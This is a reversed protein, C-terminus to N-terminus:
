RIKRKPLVLKSIPMRFGKFASSFREIFKEIKEQRELGRLGLRLGKGDKQLREHVAAITTNSVKLIRKIDMYQYNKELMMAIIIRKGLMAKETYTLLDNFFLQMGDRNQILFSASVIREALAQIQEVSLKYRSLRPM